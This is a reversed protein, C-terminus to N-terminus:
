CRPTWSIREASGVTAAQLDIKAFEGIGIELTM